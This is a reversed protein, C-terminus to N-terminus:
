NIVMWAVKTGRPARRNFRVTIKRGNRAPAAAVVWVGRRFGQLVAIVVSGPSVDVAQSVSAAARRLAIVGSRKPLNLQDPSLTAPLPLGRGLRLEGTVELAAVTAQGSVGLSNATASGAVLSDTSAAGNVELAGDVVTRGVFQGAIGDPDATGLVGIGSRTEGLVGTGTGTRARGVVGQNRGEGVVGTGAPPTLFPVSSGSYGFVGVGDAAFSTGLVGIGGSAAESAGAVGACNSVSYTTRGLMGDPRSIGVPYNNLAVFAATGSINSSIRTSGATTNTVDLHMTTQSDYAINTDHGAKAADPGALKAAAAALAAVGGAVLGRRGIRREEAVATGEATGDHGSTGPVESM